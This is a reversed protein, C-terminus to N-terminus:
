SMFHQSLATASIAYRLAAIDESSRLIQDRLDVMEKLEPDFKVLVTDGKGRMLDSVDRQITRTDVGFAEAAAGYGEQRGMGRRHGEVITGLARLQSHIEAKFTGPRNNSGEKRSGKKKKGMLVDIVFSRVDGTIAGGVEIYAALTEWDGRQAQGLAFERVARPSNWKLMWKVVIKLWESSSPDFM